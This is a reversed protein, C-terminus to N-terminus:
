TQTTIPRRPQWWNDTEKILEEQIVLKSITRIRRHEKRYLQSIASVIITQLETAITYNQPTTGLHFSKWLFFQIHHVIRQCFPKLPESSKNQYRKQWRHNQACDKWGIWHISNWQTSSSTNSAFSRYLFFILCLFLLLHHGATTLKQLLCVM